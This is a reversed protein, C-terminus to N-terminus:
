FVIDHVSNILKIKQPKNLELAEQSNLPLSNLPDFQSLGFSLKTLDEIHKVAVQYTRYKGFVFEEMMNEILSAQSVLYATASLGGSSKQLVVVKWFAEPILIGTNQFQKDNAGFVPGTFVNVKLGNQHANDLIYNELGQWL